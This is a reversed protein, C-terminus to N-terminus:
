AALARGRVRRSAHAIIEVPFDFDGSATTELLDLIADPIKAYLDDVSSGELHLGPVDSSEIFWVEAETDFAVKVVLTHSMLAM